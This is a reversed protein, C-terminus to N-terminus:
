WLRWGIVHIVFWVPFKYRTEKSGHLWILWEALLQFWDVFLWVESDAGWKWRDQSKLSKGIRIDNIILWIWLWIKQGAAGAMRILLALWLMIEVQASYESLLIFTSKVNIDVQITMNPIIIYEHYNGVDYVTSTGKPLTGAAVRFVDEENSSM